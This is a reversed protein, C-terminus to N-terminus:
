GPFHCAVRHGPAADDLAPVELFADEPSSEDLFSQVERRLAEDGACSDSLFAAREHPRLELAAHFLSEVHLWHEPTM